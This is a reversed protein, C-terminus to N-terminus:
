QSLHDLVHQPTERGRLRYLLKVWESEPMTQREPLIKTAAENLPVATFRSLNDTYRCAFVPVGARTGLDILAANSPDSLMQPIAREHKYEVIAAAKKNDYELFLDIDTAPCNFGWERHRLSLSQDRWGTREHGSL